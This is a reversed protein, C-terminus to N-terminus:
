AEADGFAAYRAQRDSDHRGVGHRHLPRRRIPRRPHGRGSYGVPMIAEAGHEDVMQYFRAAIEVVPDGWSVQEFEGSVKPGVRRMPHLLRNPHYVSDLYIEVKM